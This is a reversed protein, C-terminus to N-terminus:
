VESTVSMPLGGNTLVFPSATTPPLECAEPHGPRVPCLRLGERARWAIESQKRRTELELAKRGPDVPLGAHCARGATSEFGKRDATAAAVLGPSRSSAYVSVGTGEAKLPSRDWARTKCQKGLMTLHPSLLGGKRPQRGKGSDRGVGVRVRRKVTVKCELEQRWAHEPSFGSRSAM